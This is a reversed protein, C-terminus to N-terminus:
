PHRGRRWLTAYGAETQHSVGTGPEHKMLELHVRLGILRELTTRWARRHNLYTLLNWWSDAGGLSVGLEVDSNPNTTSHAGRDLVFVASVKHLGEAWSIISQLQKPTLQMLSWVVDGVHEKVQSTAALVESTRM